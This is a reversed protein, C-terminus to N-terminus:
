GSCHTNAICTNGSGSCCFSGCPTQNAGNCPICAHTCVGGSSVNILRDRTCAAECTGSPNGNCRITGSPCSCNCTQPNRVAGLPCVDVCSGNCRETGTKCKCECTTPDRVENTGCATTPCTCQCTTPNLTGTVCSPVCNGNCLTFGSKCKCQCTTPDREQNTGCPTTPCACQCTRQNLTGVTCNPVCKKHKGYGNAHGCLTFGSKCKCHKNKCEAGTPCKNNCKGCNRSSTHLNVCKDYCKTLGYGCKRHGGSFIGSLSNGHHYDADIGLAGVAFSLLCIVIRM